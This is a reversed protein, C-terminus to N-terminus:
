SSYGCSSRSTARDRNLQYLLGVLGLLFPLFYYSNRGKNGAVERPLNEQPGLYKEDIWKIGSLWNGDTIRRARQATHREPAGRLELPLLALVHVLAPTSSTTSTDGFHDTV